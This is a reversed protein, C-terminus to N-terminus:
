VPSRGIIELIGFKGRYDGIVHGRRWTINSFKIDSNQWCGHTGFVNFSKCTTAHTKWYVLAFPSQLHNAFFKAMRRVPQDPQCVIRFRHSQEAFAVQYDVAYASPIRCWASENEHDSDDTTPIRLNRWSVGGYRADDDHYYKSPNKTLQSDRLYATTIKDGGETLPNPNHGRSWLDGTLVRPDDVIPAQPTRALPRPAASSCAGQHGRVSPTGEVSRPTDEGDYRPTGTGSAPRSGGDSRIRKQGDEIRHRYRGNRAKIRQVEEASRPTSRVSYEEQRMYRSWVWQRETDNYYWVARRSDTPDLYEGEVDTGRLPRWRINEFIIGNPDNDTQFGLGQQDCHQVPRSDRTRKNSTLRVACGMGRKARKATDVVKIDSNASPTGCKDFAPLDVGKAMVGATSFRTDCKRLEVQDCNAAVDHLFGYRIKQTKDIYSMPTCGKAAALLAANSDGQIVLQLEPSAFIREAITLTRMSDMMCEGLAVVGAKGASWATSKQRRSCWCITGKVGGCASHVMSVIGTCSESCLPDGAHDAYVYTDLYIDEPKTGETIYYILDCQPFSALYQM